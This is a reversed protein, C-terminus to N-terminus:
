VIGGSVFKWCTTSDTLQPLRNGFKELALNDFVLYATGRYAPADVLKPLRDLSAKALDAAPMPNLAANM